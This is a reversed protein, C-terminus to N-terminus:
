PAKPDQPDRWGTSQKLTIQALDAEYQSQLLATQADLLDAQAQLIDLSTADGTEFSSRKFALTSQANPIIQAQQLEVQKQRSDFAVWAQRIQLTAQEVVSQYLAQEREQSAQAAAIRAQGQDFIPLEVTGAPGLTNMGDDKQFEVGATVEPIAKTKTLALDSSAAALAWQAAQVDLRQSLGLTLAQAEDTIHIAPLPSPAAIFDASASAAGMAELLKRKADALDAAAQHRELAARLAQAKIASIALADGTGTDFSDQGAHVMQELLKAKQDLRTLVDQRYVVQRHQRQVAAATELTNFAVRVITQQLQANALAQKDSRQWLASLSQTLSAMAFGIGGDSAFGLSGYLSPNPLVGSQIHHAQAERIRALDATISPHRAIALAVAQDRSLPKGNLSPLNQGPNLDRNQSLSADPLSQRVLAASADLSPAPDPTSSCGPLALALVLIWKAPPIM